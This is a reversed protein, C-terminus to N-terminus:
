DDLPKQMCIRRYGDESRREIEIYGLGAYIAQNRTM